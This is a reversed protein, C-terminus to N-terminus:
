SATAVTHVLRTLKAMEIDANLEQRARRAAEKMATIEDRTLSDLLLACDRADTSESARGCEYRTVLARMAPSPGIIVGLGAAVFDFIKNPLAMAHNFMTTDLVYFGLDYAALTHVIDRPQVPKRFKVRGQARADAYRQLSAIYTPDGVLMLDLTYRTDSMALADIMRELRREPIATGHHVLRVSETPEATSVDAVLAPANLIVTPLVGYEAAYRDAIPESVTVAASVKPMFYDLTRLILPRYLLRWLRSSEWELPSYEHADFIVKGGNAKAGEWAAPLTVWDNAYYIDCREARTVREAEVHYPRLRFWFRYAGPWLRGALLLLHGTLRTVADRHQPLPHFRVGAQELTGWGAVVVDFSRSLYQM